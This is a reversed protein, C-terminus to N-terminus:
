RKARLVASVAQGLAQRSVPVPLVRAVGLSQAASQGQAVSPFFSPSLVVVPTEAFRAAIRSLLAAGSQRPFAIDALVLEFHGAPLADAPVATVQCGLEGLWEALLGVFAGDDGVLLVAAPLRASSTARDDQDPVAMATAPEKIM